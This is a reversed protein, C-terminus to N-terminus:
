TLVERVVVGTDTPRADILNAGFAKLLSKAREDELCVTLGGGGGGSLKCGKVGLERARAILEDQVATSVGMLSLLAHNMYMLEGLSDEDCAKLAKLGEDTIEKIMDFVKDILGERRARLARVIRLTEATTRVRRFYGASFSLGCPSIKEVSGDGSFYVFGGLSETTTDMRSGIGQVRLEVEHAIRAIEENSLRYGLLRSYAAVTGVVVGASTGLGVSPEVPSEIEVRVPREAGFYRLAEEVYRLVRKAEESYVTYSDLLVRLGRVVLNNSIVEFRDSEEVKVLMKQSITFAIAPRGYVVAHEGFLTVKLPVEAVIM